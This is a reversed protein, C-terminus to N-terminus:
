RDLFLPMDDNPVDAYQADTKLGLGYFFHENGGSVKVTFGRERVEQFFKNRGMLKEHGRECYDKFEDWLRSRLVRVERKETASKALLCREQFFQALRDQATQYQLSELKVDDPQVLGNQQYSNWGRLCWKLIGPAEQCLMDVAKDQPLLQSAPLVDPISVTFKIVKIRNWIPDNVTHVRPMKNGFMWLTHTPRYEVPHEYKRSAKIKGEAGTLTKILSINLTGESVESTVVMRKGRMDVIEDNNVGRNPSFLLSEINIRFFYTGLVRELVNFFTTKGNEGGPGYCFILVKESNFGSISIGCLQQLFDVVQQRKRMRRYCYATFNHQVEQLTKGRVLDGVVDCASIDKKLIEAIIAFFEDNVLEEDGKQYSAFRSVLDKHVHARELEHLFQDTVVLVNDLILNIYGEWKTALAAPEFNVGTIMSCYMQASHKAFGGDSDALKNLHLVGNQCNLVYPNEDFATEVISMGATGRRAEELMNKKHKNTECTKVLYKLIENRQEQSIEASRVDQNIHQITRKCLQYAREEQDPQWVKGNWYEWAGRTINWRLQDKNERAFREGNRQETLIFQSRQQQEGKAFTIAEQFANRISPLRLKPFVHEHLFSVLEETHITSFTLTTKSYISALGHCIFELGYPEYKKLPHVPHRVLRNLAELMPHRSMQPHWKAGGNRTFVADGQKIAHRYTNYLFDDIGKGESVEWVLSYIKKLSAKSAILAATLRLEAQAVAANSKWDSDFVIYVPKGKLQLTKWEEAQTFNWVGTSGYVGYKMDASLHVAHFTERYKVRMQFLHTLLQQKKEGETFYLVGKPSENASKDVETALLHPSVNPQQLYNVPLPRGTLPDIVIEGNKYQVFDNDLNKFRKVGSYEWFYGIKPRLNGKHDFLIDKFDQKATEPTLPLIYKTLTNLPVGLIEPQLGSEQLDKIAPDLSSQSM